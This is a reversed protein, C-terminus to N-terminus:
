QQAEARTIVFQEVTADIAFPTPEDFRMVLRLEGTPAFFGIRRAYVRPSIRRMNSLRDDEVIVYIEKGVYIFVDGPRLHDIRVTSLRYAIPTSM